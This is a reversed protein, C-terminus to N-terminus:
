ARETNTSDRRDRLYAIYKSVHPDAISQQLWSRVQPHVVYKENM